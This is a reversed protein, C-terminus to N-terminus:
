PKPAPPTPQPTPTVPPQTSPQQQPSASFDCLPATHNHVILWDDGVKNFVLTTQGRLAYPKGNWVSSFEWQYEAWAVDAHVFIYTNRRILQIAPFAIRQQQYGAVYNQWGIIPPAFTGSVFTVNDSYYKHMAEVDGAQFAGLMEGIDHDIQDSVPLPITPMPSTNDPKKNKTKQAWAGSSAILIVLIAALARIGSLFNKRFTMRTKWISKAPTNSMESDGLAESFIVFPFSLTALRQLTHKISLVAVEALKSTVQFRSGGPDFATFRM